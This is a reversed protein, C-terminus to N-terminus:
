FNTRYKVKISVPVCTGDLNDSAEYIVFSASPGGSTSRDTTRDINHLEMKFGVMNPRRMFEDRLYQAKAEFTMRFAEPSETLVYDETYPIDPIIDWMRASPRSKLLTMLAGLFTVDSMRELGSEGYESFGIECIPHEMMETRIPSSNMAIRLLDQQTRALRGRATSAIHQM